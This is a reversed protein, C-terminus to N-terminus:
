DSVSSSLSSFLQRLSNQSLPKTLFGDTGIELCKIKEDENDHATLAVIPTRAIEGSEMMDKLKTIAEYGTMIPMLLDMLIVKIQVRRKSLDAVKEIAEEGSKACLPEYGLQKVMFEGVM